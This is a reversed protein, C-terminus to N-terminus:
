AVSRSHVKGCYDCRFHRLPGQHGIFRTKVPVGHAAFNRCLPPRIFARRHVPPRYQRYNRYSM